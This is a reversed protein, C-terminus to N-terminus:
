DFTHIYYYIRSSQIISAGISAWILVDILSPDHLHILWNIFEIFLVLLSFCFLGAYAAEICGPAHIDKLILARIRQGITHKKGVAAVSDTKPPGEPGSNASPTPEPM